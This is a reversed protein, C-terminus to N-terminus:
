KPCLLVGSFNGGEGATTAELRLYRKLVEAELKRSYVVGVGNSANTSFVMASGAGNTVVSFSGNSATAHKLTVTNVYDVGNTTGAGVTVVLNCIGKAGAVDVATNTVATDVTVYTPHGLTKVSVTDYVDLGAFALGAALVACFMILKKM